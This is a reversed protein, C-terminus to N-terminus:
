KAALTKLTHHQDGSLARQHADASGLQAGLSRQGRVRGQPQSGVGENLGMGGRVRDERAGHELQEAAGLTREEQDLADGILTARHRAHDGCRFGLQVDRGGSLQPVDITPLSATM